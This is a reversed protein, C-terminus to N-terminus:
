GYKIQLMISVFDSYTWICMYASFKEYEGITSINLNAGRTVNSLPSSYPRAFLYRDSIMYSNRMVDGDNVARM